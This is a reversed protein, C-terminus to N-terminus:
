WGRYAPRARASERSGARRQGPGQGPGPGAGVMCHGKPRLRALAALNFSPRGDAAVSARCREGLWRVRRGRRGIVLEREV